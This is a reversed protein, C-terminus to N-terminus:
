QFVERVVRDFTERVVRDFAERVVRHFSHIISNIILSVLVPHTSAEGEQWRGSKRKEEKKRGKRKRKEEEKGRM